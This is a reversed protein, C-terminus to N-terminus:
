ECDVSTSGAAKVPNEPGSKDMAQMRSFIGSRVTIRRSQQVLCETLVKAAGPADVKNSTGQASPLRSAGFQAPRCPTGGSGCTEERGQRKPNGHGAAVYIRDFKHPPRIRPYNM